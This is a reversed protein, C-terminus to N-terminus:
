DKVQILYQKTMKLTNVKMYAIGDCSGFGIAGMMVRKGVLMM